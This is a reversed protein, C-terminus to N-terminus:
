SASPCMPADLEARITECRERLAILEPVSTIMPFMISLDGGLAAARYLACNRISCIPVVCCCVRAACALFPNEEKPLDLHPV